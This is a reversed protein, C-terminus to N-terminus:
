SDVQRMPLAARDPWAITLVGICVDMHQAKDPPRPIEAKRDALDGLQKMESSVLRTGASVDLAQSRHVERGEIGFRYFKLGHTPCQAAEGYGAISIYPGM